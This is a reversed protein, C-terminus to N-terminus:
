TRTVIRTRHPFGMVTGSPNTEEKPVSRNGLETKGPASVDEQLDPDRKPVIRGKTAAKGTETAPVLVSLLANKGKMETIEVGPVSRNATRGHDKKRLGSHNGTEEKEPLFRNEIEMKEATVAPPLIPSAVKTELDPIVTEGLVSLDENTGKRELVSRNEIEEKEPLFRNETETKKLTM